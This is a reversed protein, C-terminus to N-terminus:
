ILSTIVFCNPTPPPSSSPQVLQQNYVVDRIIIQYTWKHFNHLFALMVRAVLIVVVISFQQQLLSSSFVLSIQQQISSQLEVLYQVLTSSFVLSSYQQNSSQVVVISYQQLLSSSSVLNSQQQISSQVVKMVQIFQSGYQLNMQTSRIPTGRM